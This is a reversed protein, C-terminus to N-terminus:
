ASRGYFWVTRVTRGTIECQVQGAEQLVRDHVLRTIAPRAYNMDQSGLRDCVERDTAPRGIEELTDCVAKMRPAMDLERWSDLSNRHIRRITRTM